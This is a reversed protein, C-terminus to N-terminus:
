QTNKRVLFQSPLNFFFIRVIFIRSAIPSPHIEEPRKKIVKNRLEAGLELWRSREQELSKVEESLDTVRRNSDEIRRKLRDREMVMRSEKNKFNETLNTVQLKLATVEAREAKTPLISSAKLSQSQLHKQKALAKQTSEKLQTLRELEM